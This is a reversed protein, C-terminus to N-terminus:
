RVPGDTGNKGGAGGGRKPRDTTGFRSIQFFYGALALGLWLIAKIVPALPLAMVVAGAGALASLASLAWDMILAALVAGVLGGALLLLISQSFLGTEISLGAALFVGCYFGALAFALREFFVALLAGGLGLLFSTGLVTWAPYGALWIAGLRSGALFGLIGVFLWFLKRGFFL